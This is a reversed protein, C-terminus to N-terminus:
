GRLATPVYVGGSWPPPEFTASDLGVHDDAFSQEGAYFSATENRPRRPPGDSLEYVGEPPLSPMAPVPPARAFWRIPFSRAFHPSLTGDWGRGVSLIVATLLVRTAIGLAVFGILACQALATMPVRENAVCDAGRPPISTAPASATVDDPGLLSRLPDMDPAVCSLMRYVYWAWHAIPAAKAGLYLIALIRGETRLAVVALLPAVVDVGATLIISLDRAADTFLFLFLWIVITNHTDITVATVGLQYKRYQQRLPRNVGLRRFIRWGFSKYVLPVTIFATFASAVLLCGMILRPIDGVLEVYHYGIVVVAVVLGIAQLVVSGVLRFKNESAMAHFATLLAYLANFSAIILWSLSTWSQHFGNEHLSHFFTLAWLSMTSVSLMICSSMFTIRSKNMSILRWIYRTWRSCFPQDAM